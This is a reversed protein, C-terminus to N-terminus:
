PHLYSVTKKSVNEELYTRADIFARGVNYVCPNDLSYDFAEECPMNYKSQSGDQAISKLLTLVFEQYYYDQQFKAIDSQDNFIDYAHLLSQHFQVITFSFVTAAISDASMEGKWDDLLDTMFDISTVDKSSFMSKANEAIEILLRAEM